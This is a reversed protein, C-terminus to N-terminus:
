GKPREMPFAKKAMRSYRRRGESEGRKRRRPLWLELITLLGTM